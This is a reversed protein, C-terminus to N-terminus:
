YNKAIIVQNVIPSLLNAFDLDSPIMYTSFMSWGISFSLEQQSPNDTVCPDCSEYCYDGIEEVQGSRTFTRNWGGIGNSIGCGATEFDFNEGHEFETGLIPEGNSFKFQIDAPGDVLVTAIYLGALNPDETM